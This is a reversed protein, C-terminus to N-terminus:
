KRGGWWLVVLLITVGAMVVGYTTTAATEKVVRVSKVITEVPTPLRISPNVGRVTAWWATVATRHAIEPPNGLSIQHTEIALADATALPHTLYEIWSPERNEPLLTSDM